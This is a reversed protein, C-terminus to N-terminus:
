FPEDEAIPCRIVMRRHPIGGEEFIDGVAEWGLQEYFPLARVQAHCYLERLGLEGFARSEITAVLRRGVGEGQRQRDVAMQMLRGIGAGGGGGASSDHPLLAACGIVRRGTGFASVKGPAPRPHEVTAVFHEARDEIEGFNKRWWDMSLGLPRLLVEERLACEQPYLPHDPHIRVISLVAPSCVPPRRPGGVRSV